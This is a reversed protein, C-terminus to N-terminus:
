GDLSGLLSFVHVWPSNPAFLSGGWETVAVNSDKAHVAYPINVGDRKTIFKNQILRGDESLIQVIGSDLCLYINGSEHGSIGWPSASAVFTWITTGERDICLVSRQDRDSVIINGSITTSIFRPWSFLPQGHRDKDFTKLIRGGMDIIEICQKGLVCCSVVLNSDPLTCVGEYPKQTDIEEKLALTNDTELRVLQSSDPLTVLVDTGDRVPCVSVPCDVTLQQFISTSQQYFCKRIKNNRADAVIIHDGVIAIGTLQWCSTSNNASKVSFSMKNRTSRSTENGQSARRRTSMGAAEQPLSQSRLVRTSVAQGRPTALFPMNSMAANFTPKPEPEQVGSVAISGLAPVNEFVSEIFKNPVFHVQVPASNRKLTSLAHDYEKTQKAVKRVIDLIEAGSGHNCVEDFKDITENMNQLMVAIQQNENLKGVGTEMITQKMDELQKAATTFFFTLKTEFDTLDQM